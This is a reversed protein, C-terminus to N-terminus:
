CNLMEYGNKPSLFLFFVFDFMGIEAGKEVVCVSLDVDNERCLQKLRIAASLGAPGGGVIVVDYNICERAAESSFRKRGLNAYGNRNFNSGGFKILNLLYGSSFSRIKLDNSSTQTIEYSPKPLLSPSKTYNNTSHLSLISRLNRLKSNASFSIIKKFM